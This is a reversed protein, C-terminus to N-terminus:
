SPDPADHADGLPEFGFYTASFLKLTTSTHSHESRFRRIAIRKGKELDEPLFPIARVLIRVMEAAGQYRVEFIAHGIFGHLRQSKHVAAMLRDVADSM